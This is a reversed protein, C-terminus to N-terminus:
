GVIVKRKSKPRMWQPTESTHPEQAPSALGICFYALAIVWHDEGDAIKNPDLKDTRIMPFTRILDRAAHKLIQLKPQGKILTNLFDHVAYGFLRRDNLSATLPVGANEFQEAITFVGAGDKLFMSPDAFTEIINMGESERKIAEAVDRALTREWKREKFVFARKDPLVAIWLCVAPDPDYGWDLARYISVWELHNLSVENTGGYPSTTTYTPLDERVHWAVPDCDETDTCPRKMPRFDKFYAGEVVFEGLLWARRVHDPLNKLRAAYAKADISPNDELTSFQMQFDDPHYDPYDELRVSKDVFWQQMWEAGLGLPNSGARVIATYGATEPARAAASIQLFQNLTFTSLEDFYIAGYESSLFNLIDAETECHAFTIKSGNPFVAESTTKLWTGGLLKMEREIFALHSRRLEPMTRRIILAQFHPITMCRMIADWRLMVSKGTGRTGLALLNPADTSHFAIQHPWPDYLLVYQDLDNQVAVFQGQDNHPDERFPFEPDFAFQLNARSM